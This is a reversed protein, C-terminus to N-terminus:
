VEPFLPIGSLLSLPIVMDEYYSRYENENKVVYSYSKLAVRESWEEIEKQDYVRDEMLTDATIGFHSGYIRVTLTEGRKFLAEVLYGCGFEATLTVVSPVGFPNDESYVVRVGYDSGTDREIARLANEVGNLVAHVRNVTAM